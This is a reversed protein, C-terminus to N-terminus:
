SPQAGPRLALGAPAAPWAREVAPAVSAREPPIVRQLDRRIREAEGRVQALVDGREAVLQRYIPAEEVM